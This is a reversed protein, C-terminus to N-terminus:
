KGRGFCLQALESRATQETMTPLKKRLTDMKEALARLAALRKLNAVVEVMSGKRLSPMFRLESVLGPCDLREDLRDLVAIREGESKHALDTLATFVVPRDRATFCDRSLSVIRGSFSLMYALAFEEGQIDQLPEFDEPPLLRLPVDRPDRDRMLKTHEAHIPRPIRTNM